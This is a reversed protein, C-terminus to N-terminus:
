KAFISCHQLYTCYPTTFQNDQIWVPFIARFFNVVKCIHLTTDCIIVQDTLLYVSSARLYNVKTQALYSIKIGRYKCRM